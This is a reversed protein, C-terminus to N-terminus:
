LWGNERYWQATQRLREALPAAPAFGLEDAASQPSCTWSGALAERAKDPNFHGPSRRIRAWVAALGAITWVVLPGSRVIWVRRDFAAAIRRGLEAYTPDEGCAAFYCGQAAASPGRDGALRKGRESALILLRVLDEAHILSVRHDRWSPVFHLGFRAIPRFVPWMTSDSEGFVIAPRVITMPVRQAWARAALEGALKSRGYRSVPAPPDSEVRPQRGDSPGAAALSSAMVLVPPSDPQACAWAVNRVGEENVRYFDARRRAFLCGALQFVIQQSRAAAALSERDALDGYALRVDRTQLRSLGSSRRVLCTVEHGQGVLARVLHSGIFGNAGTVLVKAM